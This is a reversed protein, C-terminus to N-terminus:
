ARLQEGIPPEQDQDQGSASSTLRVLRDAVYVSAVIAATTVISALSLLPVGVMSHGLNCGGAFGAGIGMLLGGAGLQAFRRATEGRVWMTGSLKAAAIAGPVLSLLALPIWWSISEGTVARSIDSPVGSTGYTYGFGHWRALPWAVVMVAASAVGLPGWGWLSGRSVTASHTQHSRWLYWAFGTGILAVIAVGAPGLLTTFTEARTTGEDDVFTLPDANLRDQLDNLPGRYVILDGAAWAALAVVM